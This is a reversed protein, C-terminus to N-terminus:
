RELQDAPIRKGRKFNDTCEYTLSVDHLGKADVRLETDIETESGHDGCTLVTVVAKGKSTLLNEWVRRETILPESPEEASAFVHLTPHKPTVGILVTDSHGCPETGIQLVFESAQGDHNYDAIKMIQVLPRSSIEKEIPPGFTFREYDTDRVPWRQLAAENMEAPHERGAFLPTLALVDDPANLRSRILDLVGREGYRFGICPCDFEPKDCILQPTNRWVLKWTELQGAVKVQLQERVVPTAVPESVPQQPSPSSVQSDQPQSPNSPSESPPSAVPNGTPASSSALPQSAVRAPPEACSVVTALVLTPISVRCPSM